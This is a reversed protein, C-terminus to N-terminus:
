CGPSFKQTSDGANKRQLYEHRYRILPSASPGPVMVYKEPTIPQGTDKDVMIPQVLRQTEKDVL